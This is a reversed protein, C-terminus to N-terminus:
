DGVEDSGLVEESGPLEQETGQEGSEEMAAISTRFAQHKILLSIYTSGIASLHAAAQIILWSASSAVLM